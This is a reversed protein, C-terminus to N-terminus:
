KKCCRCETIIIIVDHHLLLWVKFATSMMISVHCLLLLDSQNSKPKTSFITENKFCAFFHYEYQGLFEIKTCSSNQSPINEKSCLNHRLLQLRHLKECFYLTRDFTQSLFKLTMQILPFKTQKIIACSFFAYTSTAAFDDSNHCARQFDRDLFAQEVLFRSSHNQTFIFYNTRSSKLSHSLAWFEKVFLTPGLVKYCLLLAWFKESFM